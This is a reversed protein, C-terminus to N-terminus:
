DGGAFPLPHAPRGGAFQELVIVSREFFACGVTSGVQVPDVALRIGCSELAEQGGTRAPNRQPEGAGGVGMGVVREAVLCMDFLAPARPKEVDSRQTTM